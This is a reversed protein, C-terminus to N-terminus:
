VMTFVLNKAKRLFYIESAFMDLEAALKSLEVSTKGIDTIRYNAINKFQSNNKKLNLLKKLNKSM